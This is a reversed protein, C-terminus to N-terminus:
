PMVGYRPRPSAAESRRAMTLELAQILRPRTEQPDIVEDINFIGAAPYPGSFAAYQQRLQARLADPDEAEALEKAHAAAIASDPPLSSFDVTPWALALTQPGMAGAMLGGGFGFAKRLIVSFVPTNAWALAYAAALGYKLSGEREAEKGTMVGPTDALSIIPIHYSSCLEIFKRAKQGEPGSLAGARVAPQNAIIAVSHGNLRAFGTILASGYDPKTEFFSGADVICNVLENMDYTSRASEPLVTLIRENAGAKADCAKSDPPYSWANSPLYSLYRRAAVIAESDDRACNDVMGTIAAHVSVGGLEEKSVNQGTSAKVVPPGGAALMGTGRVMILYEALAAELAPEGACPGMVLALTPVTGSLRALALLHGIIPAGETTHLMTQARFGVGDLMMILPIREREATEIMRMRKHGNIEGVSGGLVTADEAFVCVARDDIRGVGAVLGDAPTMDEGPKQGAHSALLGYEQFSGPDLLHQVRERATLKGKGHQRQIKEKGGMQLAAERRHKLADIHQQM